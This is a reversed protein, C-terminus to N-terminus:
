VSGIWSLPSKLPTESVWVDGRHGWREDYNNFHDREWPLSLNLIPAEKRVIKAEYPNKRKSFTIKILVWFVTTEEDIIDDSVFTM